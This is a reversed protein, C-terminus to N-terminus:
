ARVLKLHLLAAPTHSCGIFTDLQAGAVQHLVQNEHAPHLAVIPM